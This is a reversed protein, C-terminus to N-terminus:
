SRPASACDISDLGEAKIGADGIANRRLVLNVGGICGMQDSGDVSVNSAMGCASSRL